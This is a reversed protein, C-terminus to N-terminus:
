QESKDMDIFPVGRYTTVTRKVPNITPVRLLFWFLLIPGLAKSVDVDIKTKNKEKIVCEPLFPKDPSHNRLKKFADLVNSGQKCKSHGRGCIFAVLLSLLAHASDSTLQLM